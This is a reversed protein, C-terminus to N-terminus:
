RHVLLLTTRSWNTLWLILTNRGAFLVLLPVNAFSLVGLRNAISTLRSLQSTKGDMYCSGSIGCPYGVCVLVVNITWIYFFFLAQERTPMMFVDSIPESHRAGVLPPDNFHGRFRSVFAPPWPLFRIASLIIPLIACTLFIILGFKQHNTEILVFDKYYRRFSEWREIAM